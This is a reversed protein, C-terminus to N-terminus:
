LTMKMIMMMLIMMTTTRKVVVDFVINIVFVAFADDVIFVVDISVAGIIYGYFCYCCHYYYCCCFLLTM